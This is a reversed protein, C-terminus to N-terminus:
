MEYVFTFDSQRLFVDSRKDYPKTDNQFHDSKTAVFFVGLNAEWAGDIVFAM